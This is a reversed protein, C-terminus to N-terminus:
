EEGKHSKIETLGSDSYHRLTRGSFGGTDKRMLKLKYQDIMKHATKVNEEGIKYFPSVSKKMMSAGGYIAAEIENNRIGFKSFEEVMYNVSCSVYKFDNELPTIKCPHPCVDRCRGGYSNESLQAHCVASIKKRPNFLIVSVCSGLVTWINTPERAIILEGPLLFKLSYDVVLKQKEALKDMPKLDL